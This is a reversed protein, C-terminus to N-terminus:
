KTKGAAYCASSILAQSIQIKNQERPLARIFNIGGVLISLYGWARSLKENEDSGSLGHTIVDIIRNMQELYRDSQFGKERAVDLTLVALSCGNEFSYSHELSLYFEAFKVAWKQGYKSQYDPIADIVVNLGDELSVTFANAKSKLHSYFAGSTVKADDSLADIGVGYYGFRRFGKSASEVLRLRTSERKSLQTM